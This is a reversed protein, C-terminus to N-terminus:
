LYIKKKEKDSMIANDKKKLRQGETQMETKKLCYDLWRENEM